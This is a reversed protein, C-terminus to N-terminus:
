DNFKYIRGKIKGSELDKGLISTDQWLTLLNGNNLIISKSNIYKEDHVHWYRYPSYYSSIVSDLEYTLRPNEQYARGTKDFRSIIIGYDPNTSSDLLKAGDKFQTSYSAGFNGYDDIFPTIIQNEIILKTKYRQANYIYSTYSTYAYQTATPTLNVIKSFKTDELINVLSTIEIMNSSFGIIGLKKWSIAINKGNNSIAMNLSKLSDNESALLSFSKIEDGKSNYKKLYIYKDKTWCIYTNLDNDSISVSKQSSLIDSNNKPTVNGLKKENSLAIGNKDIFQIKQTYKPYKDSFYFDPITILKGSVPDISLKTIQEYENNLFSGNSLVTLPIDKNYTNTEELNNEFNFKKVHSKIEKCDDQYSYNEKPYIPYPYEIFTNPYSYYYGLPNYEINPDTPEFSNCTKWVIYFDGNKYMKIYYDNSYSSKDSVKFENGIKEGDITYKQAFIDYTKYYSPIKKYSTLPYYGDPANYEGDFVQNPKAYIVVFGKDYSAVQIKGHSMYSIPTTTVEFDKIETKRDIPNRLPPLKNECNSNNGICGSFSRSTLSDTIVFKNESDLSINSFPDKNQALLSDIMSSIQNILSLNVKSNIDKIQIENNIIDFKEITDELHLIEPNLDSIIGLSTTKSNIYIKNKTISKYIKGDWLLLTRLSINKDNIKRTAELVFIDNKNPLFYNNISLTFKGSKNAFGTSVVNNRLEKIKYNQPYSLSVTTNSIVDSESAKIKFNDFEVVGEITITNKEKNEQQITKEIDKIGCSTSFTLISIIISLTIKNM